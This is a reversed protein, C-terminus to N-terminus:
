HTVVFQPTSRFAFLLYEQLSMVLNGWGLSRTLDCKIQVILSRPIHGVPVDESLEQVRVEQFFTVM